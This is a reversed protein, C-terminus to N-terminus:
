LPKGARRPRTRKGYYKEREKEPIFEHAKAILTRLEELFPYRPNLTYIRVRGLIRSVVIGANELRRLQQQIRNVPEGFTKAMGFPYGEGYVYLTFLIKEVTINGFIGELM